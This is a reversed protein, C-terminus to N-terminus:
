GYHTLDFSGDIFVKPRKGTKHNIGMFDELNKNTSELESKLERNKRKEQFYAYLSVIAISGSVIPIVRDM